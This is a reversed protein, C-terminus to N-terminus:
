ISGFWVEDHGSGFGFYQDDYAYIGFEDGEGQYNTVRGASDLNYTSIGLEYRNTEKTKYLGQVVVIQIHKKTYEDDQTMIMPVIKGVLTEATKLYIRNWNTNKKMKDYKANKFKSYLTEYTEIEKKNAKVIKSNKRLDSISTNSLTEVENGWPFRNSTKIPIEQYEYDVWSGLVKFHYPKNKHIFLQKELKKYIPGGTLIPRKTRPNHTRKLEWENLEEPTFTYSM